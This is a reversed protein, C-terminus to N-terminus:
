EKGGEGRLRKGDHRRGFLWRWAPRRGGRGPHYDAAKYVRRSGKLMAAALQRPPFRALRPQGAEAPAMGTQQWLRDRAPRAPVANERESQEASSSTISPPRSSTSAWMSGGSSAVGVGVRRVPSRSPPLLWQGPSTERGNFGARWMPRACLTTHASRAPDHGAKILEHCPVSQALREELLAQGAGHGQEGSVM